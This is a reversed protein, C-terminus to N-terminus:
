AKKIKQQISAIHKKAENLKRAQEAAAVKQDLILEIGAQIVPFYSLCDEESLSHIGVSLISYLARQEVLFAPLHLRLLGIREDMRAKGYTDENWDDDKAALQHAEEVLREFIRRLYVFSGIGIGHSALGTARTLEAYDHQPLVKRYQQLKGQELDALSPSQGMKSLVRGSVRFSFYFVHDHVRSCIFKKEHTGNAGTYEFYSIGLDIKGGLLVTRDGCFPCFTDLQSNTTIFDFLSRIHGSDTKLDLETYLPWEICLTQASPFTM